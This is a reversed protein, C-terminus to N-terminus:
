EVILKTRGRWDKTAVEIFYMGAKLKSVDVTNNVPVAELAKQGLHNYIIAEEIPEGQLTTINIFNTAPNPYIKVGSLVNRNEVGTIILPTGWEEGNKNYYVLESESAYAAWPSWWYHYALGCGKVWLYTWTELEFLYYNRNITRGNYLSPDSYISDIEWPNGTLNSQAITDYSFFYTWYPVENTSDKCIYNRTYFVTDLNSSFYKDLIEINTIRYLYDGTFSLYHANFHFQDGPEYDYIEGYTLLEQGSNKLSMFCVVLMLASVLIIKTKM